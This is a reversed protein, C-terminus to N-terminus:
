ISRPESVAQGTALCHEISAGYREWAKTVDAVRKSDADDPLPTENWVSSLGPDLAPAHNLFRTEGFQKLTPPRDLAERLQVYRISLGALSVRSQHARWESDQKERDDGKITAAIEEWRTPRGGLAGFVRNAFEVAPERLYRARAPTVPAKEGIARYLQSVDGSFWHNAPREAFKAFQKLTPAKRKVEHLRHYERATSRLQTEWRARFYAELYDRAWV